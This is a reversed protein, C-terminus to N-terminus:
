IVRLILPKEVCVHKGAHLTTLEFWAHSDQRTAVLASNVEM